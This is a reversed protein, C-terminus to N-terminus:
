ANWSILAANCTRLPWCAINARDLNCNRRWYLFYIDRKCLALCSRRWTSFNVVDLEVYVQVHRAADHAARVRAASRCGDIWYRGEYSATYQQPADHAPTAAELAEIRTKIQKM